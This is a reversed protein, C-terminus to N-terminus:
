DSRVAIRRPSTPLSSAIASRHPYRGYRGAFYPRRLALGRLNYTSISLDDHVFLLGVLECFDEASLCPVTAPADLERRVPTTAALVDDERAARNALVDAFLVEIIGLARLRDHERTAILLEPKKHVRLALDDIAVGVQLCAAARFLLRHVLLPARLGYRHTTRRRACALSRARTAETESDPVHVCGCDGASAKSAQTVQVHRQRCIASDARVATWSSV